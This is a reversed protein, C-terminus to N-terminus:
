GRTGRGWRRRRALMGAGALLFVAAASPEPVALLAVDNGDGGNYRIEWQQGGAPFRAGQDLINGGVTFRGAIADGGDNLLVLFTDAFDAPDYNLTLALNVTGSLTVSGTASVRDFSSPSEFTLRLTSGSLLTLTGTSLTGIPALIGQVGVPRNAAGGGTLTAGPNIDLSGGTSLAGDLRLTGQGVLLQGTLPNAGTITLRGPGTKTLNANGSIGGSLVLTGAANTVLLSGTGVVVLPRDTAAGVGTFQLTGLAVGEGLRIAGGSGLSSPQGTNAVDPFSLVGQRVEVGGTFTSAGGTLTLAGTGTKILSSVGEIVGGFLSPIGSDPIRLTLAFGGLKVRGLATGSRLRQLESSALLELEGPGDFEVGEASTLADNKALVLGGEEVSLTGTFTGMGALILRGLGIKHLEGTGGLGTRLTLDAVTEITGGGSITVARNTSGSQGSGGLFTLQAGPALAILNGAGVTSSVGVDGIGGTLLEGAQILLNGSWTNQGLLLLSGAGVKVLNGAGSIPAFLTLQTTTNTIQVAGGGLNLVIPRSIEATPGTYVLAGQTGLGGLTVDLGSGLASTLGSSSLSAVSIAGDEIAVRQGFGNTPETLTLTGGGRKTLVKTISGGTILGGFTADTGGTLTLANANLALTGTGALAILAADTAINLSTGSGITVLSSQDLAGTHGISLTGTQITTAGSFANDASLVLTGAGTKLLPGSGSMAGSLTLTSSTIEFAGGGANITTSRSNAANSGGTFALTGRTAAAGLLINTAAGLTGPNAPLNVTAVSLTGDAIHLAQAFTNAGALTLTGPGAKTLTAAANTGSIMGLFTTPVTQLFTANEAALALGNGAPANGSLNPLIYSGTAVDALELHTGASNSLTIGSVSDLAGIHALRLPGSLLRVAGTFAGDGALVLTGPGAKRLESGTGAIGTTLTFTAAGDTIEIEGQGPVSVPRNSSGTTGTYRLQGLSGGADGLTIGSGAGLRSSLGANAWTSAEWRGREISLDGTFALQASPAFEGGGQKVLAGSGGITGSFDARTAALQIDIIGGGAALTFARSFGANGGTYRFTGRTAAGGLTVASGAGLASANGPTGATSVALAGEEIRLAQTFNNAGTLTLVGLGKKVLTKGGASGSVIGAFTRNAPQNITLGSTGLALAGGTTGGGSVGNITADTDLALSAGAVNSLTVQGAASLAAANAVRLTGAEINVAGTLPNAGSLTLQASGAKRLLGSGSLVGAFISDATQEILLENDAFAVNGGLVGGGALGGINADAQLELAAGAVNSLTVLGPTTFAFAGARLVGSQVRVEGTFTNSGNLSLTGPGLKRFPAAGSISGSWDVTAAANTVDIAGGTNSGSGILSLSRNTTRDAAGTYQLIGNGAGNGIQISTGSGIPSNSGSNALLNVSLTGVAIDVLGTFSSNFGTLELTGASLKRLSGAGTIRNQLSGSQATLTHTGLNISGTTSVNQLSGLAVSAGLAVDGGSMLLETSIGVSTSTSLTTTGDQARLQDLSTTGGLTGGNSILRGGTITGTFDLGTELVGLLNITGSGSLLGGARLFSSVELTGSATVIISKASSGEIRLTGATVRVSEQVDAASTLTLTGAGLKEFGFIPVAIEASVGTNTVIDLTGTGGINAEIEGGVGGTSVIRYGSTAFTIKNARTLTAKLDVTGATGAFTADLDSGSLNPWNVNSAGVLWRGSDHWDGSGGQAGGIAASTDWTLDLSWGTMPQLPLLAAIGLTLIRQCTKV